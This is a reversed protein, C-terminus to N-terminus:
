NQTQMGNSNAQHANSFLVSVFLMSLFTLLLLSFRDTYQPYLFVFTWLILFKVIFIIQVYQGIRGGIANENQNRGNGAAANAAADLSTGATIEPNPGMVANYGYLFTRLFANQVRILLPDNQSDEISHGRFTQVTNRDSGEATNASVSQSGAIAAIAAAATRNSRDSSEHSLVINNSTNPASSPQAYPTSSVHCHVVCQDHLGYSLLSRTDDRLLQGRYILRVIKGALISEWFYR